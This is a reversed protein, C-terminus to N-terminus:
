RKKKGTWPKGHAPKKEQGEKSKEDGDAVELEDGTEGDGVGKDADQGPTSGMASGGVEEPLETRTDGIVPAPPNSPAVPQAANVDTANPHPNRDLAERVDIKDTALMKEAKPSVPLVEAALRLIATISAVEAANNIVVHERIHELKRVCARLAIHEKTDHSHQANDHVM